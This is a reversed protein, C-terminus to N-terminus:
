VTLRCVIVCTGYGDGGATQTASTLKLNGNSPSLQVGNYQFSPQLGFLYPTGSVTVNFLGSM